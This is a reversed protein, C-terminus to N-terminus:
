SCITTCRSASASLILNLHRSPTQGHQGCVRHRFDEVSMLEIDADSFASHYSLCERIENQYHREEYLLNQAHCRRPDASREPAIVRSCPLM